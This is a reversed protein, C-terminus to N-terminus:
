LIQDGDDDDDDDDSMQDHKTKKQTSHIMERQNWFLRDICILM